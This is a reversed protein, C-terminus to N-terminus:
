KELMKKKTDDVRWQIYEIMSEIEPTMTEFTFTNENFFNDKTNNGLGSATELQLYGITIGPNKIQVGICDQYYITKQGDTANGVLVSAVTAQTTIVCKDPYVEISRGRAGNDISFVLEEKQRRRYEDIKGRVEALKKNKVDLIFNEARRKEEEQEQEEKKKRETEQNKEIRGQIFREVDRIFEENKTRQVFQNKVLEIRYENMSDLAEMLQMRVSHCQSCMVWSKRETTFYYGAGFGVKKDCIDCKAM